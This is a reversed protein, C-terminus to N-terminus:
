KVATGYQELVGVYLLKIDIDFSSVTYLIDAVALHSIRIKDMKCICLQIDFSSLLLVLGFFVFVAIQGFFFSLFLFFCCLLCAFVISPMVEM